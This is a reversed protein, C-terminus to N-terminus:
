RYTDWLTNLDMRGLGHTVRAQVSELPVDLVDAVQAESLDAVFRLVVAQLEDADLAGLEVELARRLLVSETEVEVPPPEVAPKGSRRRRKHLCGLVTAYVYADVDDSRRVREWDRYCRSLGAQAVEAAEQRGCGLLVLTRVLFPWRAALYAAFDADNGPM